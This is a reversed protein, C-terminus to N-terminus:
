EPCESSSPRMRPFSRMGQSVSRRSSLSIEASTLTAMRSEQEDPDRVRALPPTERGAKRKSADASIVPCAYRVEADASSAACSDSLIPAENKV